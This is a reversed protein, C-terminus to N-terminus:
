LNGISATKEIIKVFLKVYSEVKTRKLIPINKLEEIYADVDFNFKRAREEFFTKDIEEDDYFFQGFFISGLFDDDVYIPYAIDWLGNNCKYSIAKNPEFNNKFFHESEICSKHASPNKKHFHTCIKQWGASVLIKNNNDFLGVGLGTADLFVDMIEKLDEINILDSISVTTNSDKLASSRNFRAMSVELQHAINELNVETSKSVNM